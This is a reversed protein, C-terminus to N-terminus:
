GRPHGHIMRSVLDHGVRLEDVVVGIVHSGAFVVFFWLMWEHLEKVPGTLDASLGLNAKFYLSLGTSVMFLVAVYFVAYSSKVLAMHGANARHDPAADILSRIARWAVGFPRESPWIVAVILRAVLLGALCFGLVYHWDWMPDRVAVALKKALEPTVSIGGQELQEQFMAANTRWSLVTKRLLVTLLLGSIVAADLWHWLRIAWPRPPPTHTM